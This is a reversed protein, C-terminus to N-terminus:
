RTDTSGAPVECPRGGCCNDTLYGIVEDILALDARYRLFRGEQVVTILGAQTLTRLHFSLNTPAIDLAAAIEGAVMGEPAAEVLRRFVALRIDSALADFVRVAADQHM